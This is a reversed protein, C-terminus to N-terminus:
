LRPRLRIGAYFTRGATNYGFVDEYDADFLNEVRAYAEIGPAVRWGLKASALLYDGLMVQRAPFVDFDSDRRKGIYSVAAGVDVPGIVGTAALNVSHRARRAERVALDGPAKREEADLYTYNANLTLGAWRYRGDLELGRRPSKGEANATSGMFTQPDFTPLIEDELKSTFGTIGVAADGRRWRVGAEWGRSSEPRLDPNGRFSGPFFGYLDYFTPQTIGEGYSAHLTWAEAPRFLATSRLTTADAFASFQDHRVAFDTIFRESWEARWQGVIGTLSRSRDQDTGGFYVQDRARFGEGEHEVAATLRHRAITRSLQAGVTFRDGFTSNLPTEGVRNRNASQLYSGDLLLSWGGSRIAGWGRLAHIRNDTADLRDM